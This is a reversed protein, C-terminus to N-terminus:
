GRASVGGVVSTGGGFPVVAIRHRSAYSLLSQVSQATRPFLVLDPAGEIMGARLRLLDHYSRGLSHFAREFPDDRANESGVIAILDRRQGESLRSLPLSLDELPRAPTALLAPMGLESALWSWVEHKSALPDDHDTWGWGNWRTKTREVRSM